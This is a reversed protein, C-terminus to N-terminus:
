KLNMSDGISQVDCSLVEQNEPPKKNEAVFEAVFVTMIQWLFDKKVTFALRSLCYSNSQIESLRM